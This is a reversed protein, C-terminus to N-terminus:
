APLGKEILRRLGADALNLADARALWAGGDTEAPDAAAVGAADGLLLFRVDLHLHAPSGNRAPIEHVDVDLPADAGPVVVLGTEERAERLAGDLMTADGPEVHGGPQLWRELKRHRVLFTRRRDFDVVLASATFHAGPQDRSLPEALDRAYSRMQELDAAETADAPRHSALLAALRDRPTM